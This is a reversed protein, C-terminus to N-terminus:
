PAHADLWALEVGTALERARAPTALEPQPTTLVPTSPMLFLKWTQRTRTARGSASDAYRRNPTPSRTLVRGAELFGARAARVGGAFRSSGVTLTPLTVGPTGSDLIIKIVANPRTADDCCASDKDRGSRRSRKRGKGYPFHGVVATFGFQM